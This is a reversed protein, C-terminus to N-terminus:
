SLMWALFDVVVTDVEIIGLDIWEFSEEDSSICNATVTVQVSSHFDGEYCGKRAVGVGKLVGYFTDQLLRVGSYLMQKHSVGRGWIREVQYAPILILEGAFYAIDDDVIGVVTGGEVEAQHFCFPVNYAEQGGVCDKGLGIDYLVDNIFYGGQSHTAYITIEGYLTPFPTQIPRVVEEPQRQQM